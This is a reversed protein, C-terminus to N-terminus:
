RCYKATEPRDAIFISRRIRSNLRGKEAAVVQSGIKPHVFVHAGECFDGVTQDEGDYYIYLNERGLERGYYEVWKQLFFEDNRVM